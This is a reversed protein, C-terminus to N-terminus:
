KKEGKKLKLLDFTKTALAENSHSSLNNQDSNVLDGKKTSNEDNIPINNNIHIDDFMKSNILCLFHGSRQDGTMLIRYIETYEEDENSIKNLVLKGKKKEFIHLQKQYIQYFMAMEFDTGYTKNKSMVNYYDASDKYVYEEEVCTCLLQVKLSEWNEVVYNVIRQRIDCHHKDTGYLFISMCYFLCNSDALNDIIKYYENDIQIRSNHVEIGRIECSKLYEILNERKENNTLEKDINNIQTLYANENTDNGKVQIKIDENNFDNSLISATVQDTKLGSHENKDIDLIQLKSKLLNELNSDVKKEEPIIHIKENINEDLDIKNRVKQEINRFHNIVYKKVLSGDTNYLKVIKNVFTKDPTRKKITAIIEM